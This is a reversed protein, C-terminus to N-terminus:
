WIKFLVEGGLGKEVATKGSVIGATTSLVLIGKGAKSHGAGERIEQMTAYIRRSPKSVREVGNVKAKKMGVAGNGAAIRTLGMKIQRASVIKEDSSEEVTSLYGEEKLLNAIELKIKSFPVSVSDKGATAANKIRTILDAIPDGVM